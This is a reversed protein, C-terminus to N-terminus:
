QMHYSPRGHRPQLLLLIIHRAWAQLGKVIRCGLGACWPQVNPPARPLRRTPPSPASTHLATAGQALQQPSGAQEQWLCSTRLM